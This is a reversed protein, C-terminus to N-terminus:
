ENLLKIAINTDKKTLGYDFDTQVLRDMYPKMDNGDDLIVIKKITKGKWENVWQYIEAGRYGHKTIPTSSIIEIGYKSLTRILLDIDKDDTNLYCRWDSSLVIQANTEDVIHKLLKVKEDEVKSQSNRFNLVGDVDLFIIKM